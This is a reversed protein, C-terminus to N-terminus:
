REAAPLDCLNRTAMLIPPNAAAAGTFDQKGLSKWAVFFEAVAWPSLLGNKRPAIKAAFGLMPKSAVTYGPYSRSRYRRSYGRIAYVSLVDALFM